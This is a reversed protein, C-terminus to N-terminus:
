NSRLEDPLTKNVTVNFQNRLDNFAKIMETLSEQPNQRYELDGKTKLLYTKFVKQRGKIQPINFAEPYEGAEMKKQNEILEEVILVLDERFETTYIKDFSRELVNHEKWDNLIQQAKPLVSRKVPLSDISVQWVSEATEATNSVRDKCSCVALFVSLFFFIRLM